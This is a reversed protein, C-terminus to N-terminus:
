DGLRDDMKARRTMLWGPPYFRLAEDIILRTYIFNPLKEMAPFKGKVMVELEDSLRREVEANQSINLMSATTEHGAVIITIIEAVLQDDPMPQGGQDRAEMLIGLIDADDIPNGRRREVLEIVTQRLKVFKQAFGLNRSPDDHLINFFPAVEVYDVSFLARLTVELVMLSVDRTVNVSEDQQAAREWKELLRLNATRMVEYFSSVADRHFAPQIMRRQKIWFEGESVMLGNGLLMAIRKIALGKIYNSWNNRLVHQAYDPSSVVYASKGFINARYIDGYLNFNQEIWARMDQSPDFGDPPGGPIRQKQETLM